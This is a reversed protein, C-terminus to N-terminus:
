QKQSPTPCEHQVGPTVAPAPPQKLLGTVLTIIVGAIVAFVTMWKRWREHSIEQIELQLKAVELRTKRLTQEAQDEEPTLPPATGLAPGQPPQSPNSM